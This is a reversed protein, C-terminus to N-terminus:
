SGRRRPADGAPADEATSRTAADDDAAGGQAPGPEAVAEEVATDEALRPAVAREGVDTAEVPTDSAPGTEVGDGGVATDDVGADWAPGPEVATGEAATDGALGPEVAGGESAAGDDVTTAGAPPEAQDRLAPAYDADPGGPPESPLSAAAGPGGSPALTSPDTPQLTPTASAGAAPGDAAPMASRRLVAALLGAGLGVLVIPWVWRARDALDVNGVLFILGIGAFTIGAILSGPDPIRRSSM